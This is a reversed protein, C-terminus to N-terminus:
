NGGGISLIRDDYRTSFFDESDFNDDGSLFNLGYYVETSVLGTNGSRDQMFQADRGAAHFILDGRLAAPNIQRVSDVNTRDTPPELSEQEPFAPHGFILSAALIREDDSKRPGILSAGYFDSALWGENQVLYFAARFEPRISPDSGATLRALATEGSDIGAEWDVVFPGNAFPDRQWALIPSEFPDILDPFLEAGGEAVQDRVIVFAEDDPAFYAGAEPTGQLTLDIVVGTGDNVDPSATPGVLVKDPIPKTATPQEGNLDATVGGALDIMINEMMTLGGDENDSLGMQAVSFYGPYRNEDTQFQTVATQLDNLQSQLVADRAASRAGGVVPLLIGLLLAIIGIVALLEVLSFGRPSVRTVNLNMSSM